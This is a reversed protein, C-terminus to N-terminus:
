PPPCSRDPRYHWRGTWSNRREPWAEFKREVGSLGPHGRTARGPNVRFAWHESRDGVRSNAPNARGELARAKTLRLNASRTQEFIRPNMM